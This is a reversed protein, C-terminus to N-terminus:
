LDGLNTTAEEDPKGERTEGREFKVLGSLGTSFKLMWSSLCNPCQAMLVVKVPDHTDEELQQAANERAADSPWIIREIYSPDLGGSVTGCEGCTMINEIAKPVDALIENATM